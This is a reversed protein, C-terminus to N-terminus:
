ATYSSLVDCFHLKLSVDDSVDLWFIMRMRRVFVVTFLCNSMQTYEVTPSPCLSPSVDNIFPSVAYDRECANIHEEETMQKSLDTAVVPSWVDRAEHEANDTLSVYRRERERRENGGSSSTLIIGTYCCNVTGDIRNSFDLENRAIDMACMWRTIACYLSAISSRLLALFYLISMRVFVILDSCAAKWNDRLCMIFCLLGGHDWPNWIYYLLYNYWLVSARSIWWHNQKKHCRCISSEADRLFLQLARMHLLPCPLCKYSRSITDASHLAGDPKLFAHMGWWYLINVIITTFFTLLLCFIRWRMNDDFLVDRSITFPVISENLLSM